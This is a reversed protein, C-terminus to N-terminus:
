SIVELLAGLLLALTAFVVGLLNGFLTVRGLRDPGFGRAAGYAAFLLGPAGAANPIATVDIVDPVLQIRTVSTAGLLAVLWM